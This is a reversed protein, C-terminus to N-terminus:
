ALLDHVVSGNKVVQHPRNFRDYLELEHDIGLIRYMTALIDGPATPLDNPFAGQHDSSGHVHGKKIGAQM